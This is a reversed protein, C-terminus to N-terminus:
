HSFFVLAVPQLAAFPITKGERYIVTMKKLHNHLWSRTILNVRHQESKDCVWSWICCPSISAAELANDYRWSIRSSFMRRVYATWTEWQFIRVWRPSINDDDRYWCTRRGEIEPGKYKKVKLPASNNSFFPGASYPLQCLLLLLCINLWQHWQQRLKVQLWQDWISVGHNAMDLNTTM